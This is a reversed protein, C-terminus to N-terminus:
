QKNAITPKIENKTKNGYLYKHKVLLTRTYQSDLNQQRSTSCNGM